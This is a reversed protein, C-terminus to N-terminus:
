TIPNLFNLDVDVVAIDPAAGLSHVESPGPSSCGLRRQSVRTQGHLSTGLRKVYCKKLWADLGM